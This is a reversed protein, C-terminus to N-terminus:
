LLDKPNFDIVFVKWQEYKQKPIPFPQCREDKVARLASEAATRYYPNASSSIPNVLKADRVTGDINMWVRVPVVLDSGNMAGAPLNWCKTIHQRLADMESITVIDSPTGTAGKSGKKKPANDDEEPASDKPDSLDKLM